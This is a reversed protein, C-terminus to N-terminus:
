EGSVEQSAGEVSYIETRLGEEYLGAERWSGALAEEGAGVCVLELTKSGKQNSKCFAIWLNIFLRKFEKCYSM